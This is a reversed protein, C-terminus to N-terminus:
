FQGERGPSFSAIAPASPANSSPSPFLTRSEEVPTPNKVVIDATGAIAIASEPVHVMLESENVYSASRTKGNWLVLSGPVFGSGKLTMRFNGTGHTVAVPSSSTATPIPSANRTVTLLLAPSQVLVVQSSTSGCYGNSVIFALGNTGWQMFTSTPASGCYSGLEDLSAVALPTFQTLNYSTIGLSSFFPTIGLAFARNIASNPLVAMASCCGTGVDFTGQLLGTTPNFEEGRFVALYKRHCHREV